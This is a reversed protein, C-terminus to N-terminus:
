LEGAPVSPQVGVQQWADIVVQQEKGGQGYLKGANAITRAAFDGFSAEPTLASDLLTAYWIHGPAEWANGSIGAAVLYFVRNPIGSNIHVGGSDVPGQVYAQMTAPQPDKGLVPDDYATGPAKMSRLAVGQIGPALIGAGILWDAQDATQGLKFQKVLSGFVDSISENLAGPQDHYALGCTYQTVGHTLEHGVVDTAGTLHMFIRGDGDGFVMQQRNWLANDYDTLYHVSADLPLGNGDISNRQLVHWYFDFTVGLSDFANNVDPDSSVPGTETRVVMGPLSIADGHQADYITRQPTPAAGVGLPVTLAGALTPGLASRTARITADSHLTSLAARKQEPDGNVGIAQLIHPPVFCCISSHTHAQAPGRPRQAHFAVRSM